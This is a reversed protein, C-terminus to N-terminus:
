QLAAPNRHVAPIHTAQPAAPWSQQWPLVFTQEPVRPQIALSVPSTQPAQPPALWGQQSPLQAPPNDQALERGPKGCVQRAQPAAPWTQQSLSTQLAPRPQASGRFLAVPVQMAPQPVSPAAQQGPAFQWIPKVQKPATIFTPPVHEAQPAVPLRHQAPAIAQLV